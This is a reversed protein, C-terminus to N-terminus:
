LAIKQLLKGLAGLSVRIDTRTMTPIKRKEAKVFDRLEEMPVPGIEDEPLGFMEAYAITTLIKRTGTKSELSELCRDMEDTAQKFKRLSVLDDPVAQQM